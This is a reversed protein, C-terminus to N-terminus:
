RSPTPSSEAGSSKELERRVDAVSLGVRAVAELLAKTSVGLLTAWFALEYDKDVSLREPLPKETKDPAPNM